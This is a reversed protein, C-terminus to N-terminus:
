PGYVPTGDEAIMGFAMRSDGPTTFVSSALALSPGAAMQDALEQLTKGKSPPVDRRTPKAASQVAQRVGNEDRVRAVPDSPTDSGGGGGCAGAFLALAAVIL